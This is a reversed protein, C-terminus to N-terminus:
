KKPMFIVDPEKFEVYNNEQNVDALRQSPDILITEITEMKIPLITAYEPYTWPWDELTTRPMTNEAAKEGRMIRLPIYFMQPNGDKTIVMVELPMMMNGKRYFTVMTGEGKPMVNGIGYDITNTTGVWHEFFWDLELGSEKEMIRKFDTVNPHKFKWTNFYRRMAKMFVEDGMIYSLQGLTVAGKSYAARGYAFNTEYHDSHTTMPEEKGSTALSYYGRYSGSYKNIVLENPPFLHNMTAASAYSTFGEDMWPYLAENSGLVGQYWSHILEHVTVGVLSRFSRKGTILTSMAYEMGGDGGQVTSFQDYPYVGFNENMFEFAKVIYDGLAEWNANIEEDDQYFFHLTPGNPVQKTYHLYDPDAAWMFDHVNPAKFHWTLKDGKKRKVKSGTKEYGHGIQQANQIYGSGGVVYSSDISIKVDFDGWVGYFERGIYPNSHWGEYDYECMKPYWQAMSYRVGEKNDRGSRRIQLPVQGEFEMNLQVSAGPMIPEELAVELITGVEQFSIDNGDKKLSKVKLYGIEEESLNYIRDRVRGDPDAITRSRVDMMSNPQFANFYLHYFVHTLTDPSNNTYTVEQTGTFQNSEVDMDVEMVYNISQQWRDAQAFASLSFTLSLFAALVIRLSYNTRKM